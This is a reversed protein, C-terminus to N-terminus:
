QGIGIIMKQDFLETNKLYDYQKQAEKPNIKTLVLVNMLQSLAYCDSDIENDDTNIYVVWFKKEKNYFETQKLKKYQKEAEEKDLMVETLISTLQDFSTYSKEVTDQDEQTYWYWQDNTKNYLKSKKLKKYKEKAKKKDYESEIIVDLLQSFSVIRSGTRFQFESMDSLWQNNKKDYLKTQKLEKYQMKANYKDFIIEALVGMLQAYSYRTTDLGGENDKRHNWQNNVPDFLVSQKLVEYKEWVPELKIKNIESLMKEIKKKIRILFPVSNKNMEVLGLDLKSKLQKIDKYIKELKNCDINM